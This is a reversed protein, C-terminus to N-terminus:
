GGSSVEDLIAAVEAWMARANFTKEVAARAGSGLQDRLAANEFSETIAKALAEGDGVPVTIANVGDDLYDVLSSTRTVVTAKAAAMSELAVTQGSPYPVDSLAVVSVRARHLLSRYSEVDVYGLVEVNDPVALGAIDSPRCAIKTPLGTARAAALMTAWDRGRDRGVALVFGEDTGVSRPAFWDCDVGFPVYRVIRQDVDLMRALPELQNTSFVVIGDVTRYMRRYWTLRAPGVTPLVSALWCSIVVMPPRRSMPIRLARAMALLHGESEFMALVADSRVIRPYMALTQLTPVGRSELKDLALRFRPATWPWRYRVDSFSPEYGYQRLYDIRYPLGGDKRQRRFTEYDPSKLVALRRRRPRLYTESYRGVMVDISFQHRIREAAASAMDLRRRDDALLRDVRDALASADGRDVLWGSVGDEVLDSVGGVSTAVVPVGAAMAEAVALGFGEYDSTSLFITSAAYASSLDDLSQAGLVLVSDDLGLAHIRRHLDDGAGGAVLVFLAGSDGGQLHAAVDLYLDINKTAVMRAVYLIVRRDPTIGNDARWRQVREVPVPFRGTDIGLPVLQIDSPELRWRQAVEDRVSSSHVVVRFRLRRCLWGELWETVRGHRGRGPADHVDLIRDARRHGLAAALGDVATGSHAHVIDPELESALRALRLWAGMRKRPSVRGDIGLPHVKLSEPADPEYGRITAVHVDFRGDLRDCLTRVVVPIGGVESLRWTVHLIRLPRVDTV